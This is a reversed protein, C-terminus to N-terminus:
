VSRIPRAGFMQTQQPPFRCFNDQDDTWLISRRRPLDPAKVKVDGRIKFADGELELELKITVGGKAKGGASNAVARMQQALEQLQAHVDASFDGDELLDIFNGASRAPAPIIQGDAAAIVATQPEEQETM